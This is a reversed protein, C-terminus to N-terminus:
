AAVLYVRAEGSKGAHMVLTRYSKCGNAHRM